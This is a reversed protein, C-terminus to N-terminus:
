ESQEQGVELEIPIDSKMEIRFDYTNRATARESITYDMVVITFIDFIQLFTSAVELSQGLSLFTDLTKATEAPAVTREESVLVGQVSISYDSDSIYEKVTGVRNTVETEVINKQKSVRMVVNQLDLDPLTDTEDEPIDDADLITTESFILSSFVDTGLYTTALVEDRDEGVIFPIAGAM